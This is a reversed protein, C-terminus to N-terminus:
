RPQSLAQLQNRLLSHFLAASTLYLNKNMLDVPFLAKQMLTKMSSHIGENYM